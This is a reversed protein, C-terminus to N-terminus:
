RGEVWIPSSWAMQGNMQQVRVTYYDGASADEAEDVWTFDLEYSEPVLLRHIL